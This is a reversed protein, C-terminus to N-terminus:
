NGPAAGIDVITIRRNGKEILAYRGVEFAAAPLYRAARDEGVKSILKSDDIKATIREYETDSTFRTGIYWWPEMTTWSDKNGFKRKGDKALPVIAMKEYTEAGLFVVYSGTPILPPASPVTGPYQVMEESEFIQLKKLDANSRLLELEGDVLMYMGTSEPALWVELKAGQAGGDPVEVAEPIWFESDVASIAYGTGTCMEEFKFRGDAGTTAEYRTCALAVPGTAKAVLRLEALPEGTMGDVATGDYSATACGAVLLTVVLSRHVQLM